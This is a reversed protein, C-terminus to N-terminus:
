LTGNNVSFIHELKKLTYEYDVTSIDNITAEYKFGIAVINRCSWTWVNLDCMYHSHFIWMGLLVLISPAMQETKTFQTIPFMKSFKTLNLGTYCFSMDNLPNEEKKVLVINIHLYLVFLLCNFIYAILSIDM